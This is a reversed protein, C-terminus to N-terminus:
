YRNQKRKTEIWQYLPIERFKKTKVYFMNIPAEIRYSIEHTLPDVFKNPLLFNKNDLWIADRIGDKIKSVYSKMSNYNLTLDTTHQIDVFLNKQEDNCDTNSYKVGGYQSEVVILLYLFFLVPSMRHEAIGEFVLYDHTRSMDFVVKTVHPVLSRFVVYDVLTKHFAKCAIQESDHLEGFYRLNKVLSIYKKSFDTITSLVKNSITILLFNDYENYKITGNKKKEPIRSTKIKVFISPKIDFSEESECLFDNVFDATTVKTLEEAFRTSQTANQLFLPHTFMMIKSLLSGQLREDDCDQNKSSLFKAVKPIYIFDFGILKLRSKIHSLTEDHDLENNVREDYQHEAYIIENGAFKLAGKKCSIIKAVEDDINNDSLVYEMAMLLLAEKTSCSTDCTALKVIDQQLKRTNWKPLLSETTIFNGHSNTENQKKWEKLNNLAQSFTIKHAQKVLELNETGDSQLLGYEAKLKELYRIEANDIIGDANIVDFLIRLAAIKFDETKLQM